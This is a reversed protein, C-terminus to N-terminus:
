LVVNLTGDKDNKTVKKFLGGVRVDLGTKKMNDLIVQHIDDDLGLERLIKSRVLMTTQM